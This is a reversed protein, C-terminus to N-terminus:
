ARSRPQPQAAPSVSHRHASRAWKAAISTVPDRRPVRKARQHASREFLWPSGTFSARVLAGVRRRRKEGGCLDGRRVAGAAFGTLQSAFAPIGVWRRLHTHAAGPAGRHRQTACPPFDTRAACMRMQSMAATRVPTFRLAVPVLKPSAVSGQASGLCDGCAVAMTFRWPCHVCAKAALSSVSRKRDGWKARAPAEDGNPEQLTM